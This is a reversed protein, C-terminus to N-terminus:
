DRVPQENLCEVAWGQTRLAAIQSDSIHDRLVALCLLERPRTIAVFVRKCHGRGSTPLGSLKKEGALIPLLTKLDHASKAFTKLVLTATHTEGKVGHISDFALVVSGSSEATLEARRGPEPGGGSASDPLSHSIIGGTSRSRQRDILFRMEVSFNM